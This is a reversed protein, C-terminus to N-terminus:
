ASEQPGAVAAATGKSGSGRQAEQMFHKDLLDLAEIKRRDDDPDLARLVPIVNLDAHAPTLAGQALHWRARAIRFMIRDRAQEVARDLYGGVRATRGGLWAPMKQHWMALVYASLAHQPNLHLAREAYRRSTLAYRIKNVPWSHLALYGYARALWCCVEVSEGYRKRAHRFTAVSDCFCVRAKTALGARFHAEGARLLQQASLGDLDVGAYVYSANVYDHQLALAEALNSRDRGQPREDRLGQMTTVM